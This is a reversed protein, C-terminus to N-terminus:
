KFLPLESGHAWQTGPNRKHFSRMLGVYLDWHSMFTDLWINLTDPQLKWRLTVLVEREKATTQEATFISGAYFVFSEVSRHCTEEMKM